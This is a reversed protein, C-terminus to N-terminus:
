SPLLHRLGIRELLVGARLYWAQCLPTLWRSQSDAADRELFRNIRVATENELRRNGVARAAIHLWLAAEL